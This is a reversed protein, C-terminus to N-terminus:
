AHIFFAMQFNLRSTYFHSSHQTKRGSFMVYVIFALLAAVPFWWGFAFGTLAFFALLVM